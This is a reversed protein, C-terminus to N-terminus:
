CKVSSINHVTNQVSQEYKVGYINTVQKKGGAGQGLGRYRERHIGWQSLGEDGEEAGETGVCKVMEGEQHFAALCGKGGGRGREERGVEGREEGGERLHSM